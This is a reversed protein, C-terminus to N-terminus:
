HRRTWLRQTTAWNPRSNPECDSTTSTPRWRNSRFAMGCTTVNQHLAQCCTSVTRSALTASKDELSTFWATLVRSEPKMFHRATSPPATASAIAAAGTACASSSDTNRCCRASWPMVYVPVMSPIACLAQVARSAFGDAHFATVCPRTFEPSDFSSAISTTPAPTRDNQGCCIPSM